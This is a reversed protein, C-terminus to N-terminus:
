GSGPRDLKSAGRPLAAVSGSGLPTAVPKSNAAAGSRTLPKSRLGEVGGPGRREQECGM